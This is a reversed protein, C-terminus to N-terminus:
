REVDALSVIEGASNKEIAILRPEADDARVLWAQRQYFHRLLQADKDPTIQRAWVTQARGIDARTYVWEEHGSHHPGYEVLVLHRGPMEALQEALRARNWQWGEPQWQVYQAFLTPVAIVHLVVLAPVAIRAWAHGCRPLAALYRMGQVVLLFLLPVIPAFYHPFVWAVSLEATVFAALAFWVFRMRKRALLPRIMLLPLWLASGLFFQGLETLGRTKAKLWGRLTQQKQYDEIGWGTQFERMVDHRYEPQEKPPKFLFLPSCGYEAEHVQYPLQLPNGTVQSNYYAIGVVGVWLVAACPIFLDAILSLWDARRSSFMWAILALTVCAGVIFGEFPRTLALIMAGVAMLTSTSIRPRRLTRPLAGFMLAGGVMPLSGGWYSLSWHIQITGHLAVLLGGLLAWRRPVWGQLM